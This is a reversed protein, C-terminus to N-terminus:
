VKSVDEFSKDTTKINHNTRREPLLVNVYVFSLLFFLVWLIKKKKCSTGSSFTHGFVLMFYDRKSHHIQGQSNHQKAGRGDDVHGSQKGCAGSLLMWHYPKQPSFTNQHLMGSHFSMNLLPLVFTVSSHDHDGEM